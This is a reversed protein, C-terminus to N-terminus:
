EEIRDRREEQTPLEPDESREFIRDRREEQTSRM